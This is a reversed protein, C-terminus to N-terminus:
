LVRGARVVGSESLAREAQVCFATLVGGDAKVREKARRAAIVGGEAGARERTKRASTGVDGDAVQSPVVERPAFAIVDVDAALPSRRISYWGCRRRTSVFLPVATMTAELPWSRVMVEERRKLYSIASM